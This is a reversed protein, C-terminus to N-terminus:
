NLKMTGDVEINKIYQQLNIIRNKVEGNSIVMDVLEEFLYRINELDDLVLNLDSLKLGLERVVRNDDDMDVQISDVRSYKSYMIDYGGRIKEVLKSYEVPNNIVESISTGIYKSMYVGITKEVEVIMGNVENIMGRVKDDDYHFNVQESIMNSLEGKTLHIKM